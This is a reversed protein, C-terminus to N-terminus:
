VGAGRNCVRAFLLANYCMTRAPPPLPIRVRSVTARICAKWAHAKLWEAMGGAVRFLNRPATRAARRAIRLSTTRLLCDSTAHVLAPRTDGAACGARPPASARKGARPVKRRSFPHLIPGNGADEAARHLLARRRVACPFFRGPVPRRQPLGNGQPAQAKPVCLVSPVGYSWRERRGEASWTKSHPSLGSLGNFGRWPRALRDRPHPGAADRSLTM